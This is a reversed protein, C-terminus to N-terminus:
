VHDPFVHLGEVLVCDYRRRRGEAIAHQRVFRMHRRGYGHPGARIGDFEFDFIHARAVAEHVRAALRHGQGLHPLGQARYLATRVDHTQPAKRRTSRRAMSAADARHRPSAPEEGNSRRLSIRAQADSPRNARLRHTVAGALETDEVLFAAQHARAQRWLVLVEAAASSQITITLLATAAASMSSGARLLFVTPNINIVSIYLVEMSRVTDFTGLPAPPRNAHTLLTRSAAHFTM